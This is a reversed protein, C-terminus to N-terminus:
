IGLHFDVRVDRPTKRPPGVSVRVGVRVRVDRPTKRPPTHLCGLRCLSVHVKRWERVKVGVMILPAETSIAVSASGSVAGM